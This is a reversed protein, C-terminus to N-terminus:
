KEVIRKKESTSSDTFHDQAPIDTSTQLIKFKFYIINGLKPITHDLCDM